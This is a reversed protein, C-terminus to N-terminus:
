TRDQCPECTVWLQVRWCHTNPFIRDQFVAPFCSTVGLCLGLLAHRTLEIPRELNITDLAYALCAPRRFIIATELVSHSFISSPDALGFYKPKFVDSMDAGLRHFLSLMSVRNHLVAFGVANVYGSSGEVFEDMNAGLRLVARVVQERDHYIASMLLACPATIFDPMGHSTLTHVTVHGKELLALAVADNGQKLAAVFPRNDKTDM